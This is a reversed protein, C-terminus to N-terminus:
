FRNNGAQNDPFKLDKDKHSVLELELKPQDLELWSVLAEELLLELELELKPQDSELEGEMGVM